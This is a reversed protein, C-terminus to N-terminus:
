YFCNFHCLFCYFCNATYKTVISVIFLVQVVIIDLALSSVAMGDSKIVAVLKIDLMLSSESGNGVDAEM